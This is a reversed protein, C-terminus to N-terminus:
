GKPKLASVFVRRGSSHKMKAGLNFRLFEFPEVKQIRLFSVNLGEGETSRKAGIIKPALDRSSHAIVSEKM